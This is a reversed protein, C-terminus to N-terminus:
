DDLFGLKKANPCYQEKHGTEGCLQCIPPPLPVDQYNIRDLISWIPVYVFHYIWYQPTYWIRRLIKKLM